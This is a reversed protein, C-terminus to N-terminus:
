TVSQSKQPRSIPGTNMNSLHLKEHSANWSGHLGRLGPCAESYRESLQCLTDRFYGVSAPVFGRTGKLSSDSHNRFLGGLGTCM